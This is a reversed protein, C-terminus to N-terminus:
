GNESEAKGQQANRWVETLPVRFSGRKDRKQQELRKIRLRLPVDGNDLQCDAMAPLPVRDCLDDYMATATDPVFSNAYHQRQFYAHFNMLSHDVRIHFNKAVPQGAPQHNGDEGASQPHEAFDDHADVEDPDLQPAGTGAVELSLPSANHLKDAGAQERYMVLVANRARSTPDYRLSQYVVVCGYGQLHALIKRSEGISAPQPHIKLRLARGVSRAYAPLTSAPALLTSTAPPM